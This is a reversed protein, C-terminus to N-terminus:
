YFYLHMLLDQSIVKKSDERLKRNQLLEQKVQQLFRKKLKLSLLGVKVEQM